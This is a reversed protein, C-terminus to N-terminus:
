RQLQAIGERIYPRELDHPKLCCADCLLLDIDLRVIEQAKDEPLRGAKREIDKLLSKVQAPSLSSSFRGVQNSFKDRRYFYLPETEVEASFCIGPFSAQLLRRALAMHETRQWNSGIGITYVMDRM